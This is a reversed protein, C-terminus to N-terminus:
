RGRRASSRPRRSPVRRSTAGLWTEVSQELFRLFGRDGLLAPELTDLHALGMVLLLLLSAAHDADLSAPLIGRERCRELREFLARHTRQNFDLLLRAADRDRSAAAHIEIALRRVRRMGPDAYVSVLQAFFGPGPAESAALRESLPLAHVAQEVVALLLEAKSAFHKYLAGGTVGARSAISDIGAGAYGQESFVEAAAELLRARTWGPPRDQSRPRGLPRRRATRAKM